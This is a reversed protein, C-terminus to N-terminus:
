NIFYSVTSIYSNDFETEDTSKEEFNEAFLMHPSYLHSGKLTKLRVVTQKRNTPRNQLIEEKDEQM